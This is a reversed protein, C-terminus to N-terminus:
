KGLEAAIRDWVKEFVRQGIQSRKARRALPEGTLVAVQYVLEQAINQGQYEPDVALAVGRRYCAILRAGDYVNAGAAGYKATYKGALFPAAHTCGHVRHLACSATDSIEPSGLFQERTLGRFSEISM